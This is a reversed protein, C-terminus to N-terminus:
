TTIWNDGPKRNIMSLCVSRFRGYQHKRVLALYGYHGANLWDSAKLTLLANAPKLLLNISVKM